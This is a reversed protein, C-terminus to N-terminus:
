QKAKIPKIADINFYLTKYYSNFFNLEIKYNISIEITNERREIIIDKDDIPLESEKVKEMIHRIVDHDHHLYATGAEAEVEVKFMYYNFYPPVFKIGLYVAVAILFIWILTSISISGNKN